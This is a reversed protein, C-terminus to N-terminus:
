INLLKTVRSNYNDIYELHLLYDYSKVYIPVVKFQSTKLESTTIGTSFDIVYANNADVETSSWIKGVVSLGMAVRNDYIEQLEALTPIYKKAPLGSNYEALISGLSAGLTDVLTTDFNQSILDSNLYSNNLGDITGLLSSTHQWMALTGVNYHYVDAFLYYTIETTPESRYNLTNGNFNLPDGLAPITYYPKRLPFTKVKFTEYFESIGKFDPNLGANFGQIENNTFYDGVTLYSIEGEFTNGSCFNGFVSNNCTDTFVNFNPTDITSTSINEDGNIETYDTYGFNLGVENYQFQPGFDNGSVLGKCVNNSFFLGKNYIFVGKFTNQQIADIRNYSVATSYFINDTCFTINNSYVNCSNHFTNDSFKTIKNDILFINSGNLITVNYLETIHNKDLLCSGNVSSLNMIKNLGISSGTINCESVTFMTNNAFTGVNIFTSHIRGINNRFSRSLQVEEVSGTFHNNASEELFTFSMVYGTLKNNSYLDSASNYFVINPLDFAYFSPSNYIDMDNNSLFYSYTEGLHNDTSINNVIALYEQFALGNDRHHIYIELTADYYRKFLVNHHDFDSVNNYKDILRVIRGKTATSTVPTTFDLIYEIYSDPHDEQYAILSLKNVNIALVTIPENPGTKVVPSLKPNGFSDFDPQDYITAFDTIRYMMGKDMTGADHLTKLESHTIDTITNTSFLNNHIYEIWYNLGKNNPITFESLEASVKTIDATDIKCCKDNFGM